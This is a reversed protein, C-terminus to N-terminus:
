FLFGQLDMIQSAKRKPTVKQTVLKIPKSLMIEIFVM